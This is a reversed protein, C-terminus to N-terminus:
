NLFSLRCERGAADFDHSRRPAKDARRERRRNCRTCGNKITWGSSAAAWLARAGEAKRKPRAGATEGLERGTTRRQRRTAACSCMLHRLPTSQVARLVRSPPWQLLARERSEKAGPAFRLGGRRNARGTRAAVHERRTRGRRHGRRWRSNGSTPRRQAAARTSIWTMNRGM